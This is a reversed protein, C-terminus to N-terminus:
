NHKRLNFRKKLEIKAQSHGQKAALIYWKMSETLDKEVGVGDFYCEGLFCQAADEGQEAALRFWKIAETPNYEIGSGKLYSYGIARQSHLHGQKAALLYWKFAEGKREKKYDFYRGVEYQAEANGSKAAAFFIELNRNV